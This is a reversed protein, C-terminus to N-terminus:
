WSFAALASPDRSTWPEGSAASAAGERGRPFPFLHICMTELHLQCTGEVCGALLALALVRPCPSPQWPLAAAGPPCAPAGGLGSVKCPACAACRPWCCASGGRRRRAWAAAAARRVVLGRCAPPTAGTWVAPPSALWAPPSRRLCHSRIWAPLPAPAPVPPSPALSMCLPSTAGAGSKYPGGRSERRGAQSALAEWGQNGSACLRGGRAWTFGGPGAAAAAATLLSRPAGGAAPVPPETRACAAM